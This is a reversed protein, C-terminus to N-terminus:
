TRVGGSSLPPYGEGKAKLVLSRAGDIYMIRREAGLDIGVEHDTDQGLKKFNQGSFPWIQGWFGEKEVPIVCVDM